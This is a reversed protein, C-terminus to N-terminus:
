KKDKVPNTAADNLIKNAQPDVKCDADIIKTVQKIRDKYVIQVDHIVKNKNTTNAALLNNADNSKQEAIAVKAEMEKIQDQYIATIGSGGYMFIGFVITVGAVPKIFMAYPKFQPIHSLIGSLLYIAFGAGALAPWAWSPVNGLILQLIWAFM